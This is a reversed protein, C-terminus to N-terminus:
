PVTACFKSQMQCQYFDWPTLDPSRPSLCEQRNEDLSDRAYLFSTSRWWTAFHTEGPIHEQLQRWLCQKAHTPLGYWQCDSGCLLPPWVRKYRICWLVRNEALRAHTLHSCEEQKSELFIFLTALLISTIVLRRTLRLDRQWTNVFCKGNHRRM